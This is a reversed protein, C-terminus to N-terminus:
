LEEFKVQHTSFLELDVYDVKFNELTEEMKEIFGKSFVGIM